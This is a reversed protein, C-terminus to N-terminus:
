LNLLKKWTNRGVIGDCSLKKASQFNKVSSETGSGFIGDVGGSLYQLAALQEQLLKTINGKTGKKIVPCASLTMAGAIGDEILKNGNEDKFGQVNLEKQLKLVWNNNKTNKNAIVQDLKAFTNNGALYDKVLGHDAQFSGLSDHTNKGYIGDAGYSGCSYGCQILKQQLEKCRPSNYAKAKEYTSDSTQTSPSTVNEVCSNGNYYKMVKDKFAIWTNDGGERRRSSYYNNWGYPCDKKSVDYHRCIHNIDIKYQKMLYATYEATNEVTKSPVHGNANCCMELSISTTNTCGNLYRGYGNNDGVSWTGHAYDISQYISNEDIFTHATGGLKNNKQSLAFNKAPAACGTYHIVIWKPNNQNLYCQRTTMISRNVQLM